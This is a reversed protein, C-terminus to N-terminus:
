EMSFNAKSKNFSFTANPSELIQSAPTLDFVETKLEKFLDQLEKGTFRKISRFLKKFPMKIVVVCSPVIAEFVKEGANIAILFETNSLFYKRAKGM